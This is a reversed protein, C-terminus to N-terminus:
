KKTLLVSLDDLHKKCIDIEGKMIIDAGVKSETSYRTFMYLRFSSRCVKGLQVKFENDSIWRDILSNTLIHMTEFGINPDKSSLLWLVVRLVKKYLYVKVM